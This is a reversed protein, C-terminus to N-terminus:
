DIRANRIMTTLLKDESSPRAEQKVPQVKGDKVEYIVIQFPKKCNSCRVSKKDRAGAEFKSNSPYRKQCHPCEVFKLM